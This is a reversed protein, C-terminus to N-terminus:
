AMTSSTSLMRISSARVGRIMEPGAVSGVNTGTMVIALGLGALQIRPMTEPALTFVATPVFNSVFGLVLMYPVVVGVSDLRFGWFFLIMVLVTPIVSWIIELRTDHAKSDTTGEAEGARRRYRLTFYVMFFLVIGFFVISAYVLFYFLSDVEGAITSSGPPM